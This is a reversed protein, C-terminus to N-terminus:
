SLPPKILGRFAGDPLSFDYYFHSRATKCLSSMVLDIDTNEAPLCIFKFLLALRHGTKQEMKGAIENKIEKERHDYIGYVTVRQGSIEKKIIDFYQDCILLESNNIRVKKFESISFNLTELEMSKEVSWEITIKHFVLNCQHWLMLITQMAILLALLGSVAFNSKIQV